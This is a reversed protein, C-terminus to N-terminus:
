NAVGFQLTQPDRVSIDCCLIMSVSTWRADSTESGDVSQELISQKDYLENQTMGDNLNVYYEQRDDDM